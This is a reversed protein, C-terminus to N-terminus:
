GQDTSDAYDAHTSKKSLHQTIRSSAAAIGIGLLAGALNAVLDWPNFTRYPIFIQLIEMSIAALITIVAFKLLENSKFIHQNLFRGLIYLGSFAMFTLLHVIYDLRFAFKHTSLSRNVDNGLPITNLMLLIILWAWFLPRVVKLM